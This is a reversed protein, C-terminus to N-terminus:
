PPLNNVHCLIILSLKSCFEKEKQLQGTKQLVKLDPHLSHATLKKKKTVWPDASWFDFFSEVETSVKGKEGSDKGQNQRNDSPIPASTDLACNSISAPQKHSLQITLNMFLTNVMNLWACNQQFYLLYNRLSQRQKIPYQTQM